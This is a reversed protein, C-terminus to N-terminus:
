RKQDMLLCLESARQDGFAVNSSAACLMCTSRTRTAFHAPEREALSNQRIAAGRALPECPYGFYFGQQGPQSSGLISAHATENRRKRGTRWHRSLRDRTTRVRHAVPPGITVSEPHPSIALYAHTMCAQADDVKFRTILRDCVLILAQVDNDVTFEVFVIAHSPFQQGGAVTQARRGVALDRKM